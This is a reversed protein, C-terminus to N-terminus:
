MEVRNRGNEKARYLAQDSHKMFASRSMISNNFDCSSIGCSITVPISHKEYQIKSQEIGRRVRQALVKASSVATEPLIIAFEEGGYRAVIDGNRVLEVMTEAIERLVHDGAPHGFKDNINKFYDIDILMLSVPHKDREARELESAMIEQFYRHNYLGTLADRYALERLSDNARKLKLALKDANQKSEKLELVMQAYSFNLRGLEENADQMILSFPKMDGPDIDFLELIEKSKVVVRDIFQDTQETSFQYSDQLYQRVESSLTNSNLDHYIASVKDGLQLIMAIEDFTDGNMESHHRRISQCMKEPLGWVSLLHYSVETHDFGFQQHEAECTTMKNVRKEDQIAEFSNPDVLYLILEGIDQLLGSVFIDRDKLSIQEALTEAAVAATISRKWFFNLDFGGQPVNQFDQVVVFSLAINKLSDTGILATAQSLSDVTNPLGFLSSNAIKLIRATLAPDAMIIRALDDFSNEEQKVADLIKLAVEPPSPLRTDESFFEQIATVKM